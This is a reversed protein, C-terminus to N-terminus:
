HLVFLRGFLESIFVVCVLVDLCGFGPHSLM